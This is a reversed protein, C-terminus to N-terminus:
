MTNRCLQAATGLLVRRIRSVEHASKHPAQGYSNVLEENGSILLSSEWRTGRTPRTQDAYARVWANWVGGVTLTIRGLRGLHVEGRGL